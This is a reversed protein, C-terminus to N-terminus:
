GNQGLRVSIGERVPEQCAPVLRGDVSVLCEQCIGMFCFPGRPMAARPSTRFITVGAVLLATALSEGPLASIARGDVTIEVTAPVAVGGAIRM